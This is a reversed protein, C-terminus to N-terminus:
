STFTSDKDIIISHLQDVKLFYKEKILDALMKINITKNIPIYQIYKLFRNILIFVLNYTQGQKDKSPPLDTIFDIAYYRWPKSAPPVLELLGWLKYRYIKYVQCKECYNIYEKAEQKLRPWYYKHLLLEVIKALGYHGGLPNNYNKM